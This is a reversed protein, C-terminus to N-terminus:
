KQNFFIITSFLEQAFHYCEHTKVIQLYAGNDSMTLTTTISKSSYQVTHFINLYVVDITRTNDLQNITARPSSKALLLGLMIFVNVVIPFVCEWELLILVVFGFSKLYMSLTLDVESWM